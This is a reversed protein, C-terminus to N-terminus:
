TRPRAEIWEAVESQRWRVCKSGVAVPRPFTGTAIQKYVTSRGLGVADLVESLRMLKDM